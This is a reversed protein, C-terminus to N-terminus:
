GVVLNPEHCFGKKVVFIVACRSSRRIESRGKSSDNLYDISHTIFVIHTFSTVCALPAIIGKNIISLDADIATKLM